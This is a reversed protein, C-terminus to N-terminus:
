SKIKTKVKTAKIVTNVVPCHKEVAEILEKIKAESEESDLKIDVTIKQFGASINDDIGLMGFLNLTGKISVEASNVKIDLLHSWVQMTSLMCGGISALLMQAPAPGENTGGIVKEEDLVLSHRGAKVNAKFAGDKTLKVKLQQEAVGPNKKLEEILQKYSM